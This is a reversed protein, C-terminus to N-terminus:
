SEKWKEENFLSKLRGHKTNKVRKYISYFSVILVIGLAITALLSHIRTPDEEPMLDVSLCMLKLKERKSNARFVFIFKLLTASGSGCPYIQSLIVV